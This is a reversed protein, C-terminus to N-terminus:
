GEPSMTIFPDAQESQMFEYHELVIRVILVEATRAGREPEGRTRTPACRDRSRVHPKPVRILTGIKMTRLSVATACTGKSMRGGM